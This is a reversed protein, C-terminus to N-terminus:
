LKRGDAAYVDRSKMNNKIVRMDCKQAFKLSICSIDAGTDIIALTNREKVTIPIL